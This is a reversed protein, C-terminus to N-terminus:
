IFKTAVYRKCYFVLDKDIIGGNIYSLASEVNRTRGVSYTPEDKSASRESAFFVCFDRNVEM